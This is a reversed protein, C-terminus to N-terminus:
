PLHFQISELVRAAVGNKYGSKSLDVDIVHHYERLILKAKNKWEETSNKSELVARVKKHAPGNPLVMMIWALLDFLSHSPEAITM